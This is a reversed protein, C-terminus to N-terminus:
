SQASAAPPHAPPHEDVITVVGEGHRRAAVRELLALRFPDYRRGKLWAITPTMELRYNPKGSPGPLNIARLEGSRIARRILDPECDLFTALEGVTFCDDGARTGGPVRQSLGDARQKARLDAVCAEIAALCEELDV